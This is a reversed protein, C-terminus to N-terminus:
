FEAIANTNADTRCWAMPEGAPPCMWIMCTEGWAKGLRYAHKMDTAWDCGHPDFKGWALPQVAIANSMDNRKIQLWYLGDPGTM